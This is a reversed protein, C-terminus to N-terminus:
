EETLQLYVRLRERATDLVKKPTAQTKKKFVDLIVVAEQSLYYLIRWNIRQDVIRLEYCNPGISRMPRSDPMTLTEGQQLARLLFGAKLRGQTSFPPTRIEGHLWVLPKDSMTQIYTPDSM